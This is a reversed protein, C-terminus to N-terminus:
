MALCPNDDLVATHGDGGDHRRVIQLVQSAQVLLPSLPPPDDRGHPLREAANRGLLDLALRRLGHRVHPLLHSGLTFGRGSDISFYWRDDRLLERGAADDAGLGQEVEGRAFRLRGIDLGTWWGEGVWRRLLALRRRDVEAAASDIRDDACIPLRDIDSLPWPEGRGVGGTLVLGHPGEVGRFAALAEGVRRALITEWDALFAQFRVPDTRDGLVDEM